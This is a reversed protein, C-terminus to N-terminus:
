TTVQPGRLRQLAARLEQRAIRVRSYVTNLPIELAEAIAPASVGELDHMILASRRDFPIRALARNVLAYAQLDSLSQEPTGSSPLEYASEDVFDQQNRALRRYNSAARFAFAFLWPRVPRSLDFESFKSYVAVFVEQCLDDLDSTAVGLRRLVRAVYVFEADFIARFHGISKPLYGAHPEDVDSAQVRPARNTM